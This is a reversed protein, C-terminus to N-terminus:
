EVAVDPAALQQRRYRQEISQLAPEVPDPLAVRDGRAAAACLSAVFLGITAGFLTGIVGGVVCGHVYAVEYAQGAIANIL